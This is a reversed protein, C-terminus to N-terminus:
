PLATGSKSKVLSVDASNIFGDANVDERFNATTVGQGSQSKTQSIDASNVFGDGTTDGLLVGMSILVASSFNSASDSVNGLSVTIVQANTVGSLNVIYNHADTGDIKNSAVSGTGSTVSANAVTTLPNTFNFVLTYDGNAGGSRCEIGPNGSPPLNVNFTGASGHVKSSVASVLQIPTAFAEILTQDATDAYGGVAWCQSVSLCTVGFLFNDQNAGTTPATVINWSNGDSSEILSQLPRANGTVYAGTAWCQSGPICTIALFYNNQTSIANPSAGVNWSTGDWHDAL